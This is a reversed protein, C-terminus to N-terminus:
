RGFFLPDLPLFAKFLRNKYLFLNKQFLLRTLNTNLRTSTEIKLMSKVPASDLWCGVLRTHSVSFIPHITVRWHGSLADLSILILMMLMLMLMMTMMMMMMMLMMLMMMILMLLMMLMMM